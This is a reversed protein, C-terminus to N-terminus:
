FSSSFSQFHLLSPTRALKEYCFYSTTINHAVQVQTISPSCRTAHASSECGQVGSHQSWDSLVGHTIPRWSVSIVYTAEILFLVEHLILFLAMDVPSWPGNTSHLTWPWVCAGMMEWTGNCLLYSSSEVWSLSLVTHDKQKSLYWM